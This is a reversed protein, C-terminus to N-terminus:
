QKKKIEFEFKENSAYLFAISEKTNVQIRCGQQVQNIRRTKQLNQKQKQKKGVCVSLIM